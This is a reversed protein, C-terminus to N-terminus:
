PSVKEPVIASPAEEPTTVIWMAPSVVNSDFSTNVSTIFSTDFEDTAATRPALVMAVPVITL